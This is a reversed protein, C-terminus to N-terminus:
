GGRFFNRLSELQKATMQLSFDEGFELISIEGEPIERLPGGGKWVNTIDVEAGREDGLILRIPTAKM